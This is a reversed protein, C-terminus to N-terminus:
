LLIILMEDAKKLKTALCALHLAATGNSVTAAYKAGVYNAFMEEFEKVKLGTTLFNSKMANTVALIDEKDITQKGYPIMVKNELIMKDLGQKYFEFDHNYYFHKELLTKLVNQDNSFDVGKFTDYFASLSKIREKKLRGKKLINSNILNYSFLYDKGFIHSIERKVRFFDDDNVIIVAKDIHAPDLIGQKLIILQGVTDESLDELIIQSKKVGKSLAYKKMIEALSFNNGIFKKCGNRRRVGGSLILKDVIGNKILKIGKNLRKRSIKTLVGGYASEALVIGPFM